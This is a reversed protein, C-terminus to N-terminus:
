ITRVTSRTGLWWAVTMFSSESLELEGVTAKNVSLGTPVRYLNLAMEEGGGADGIECQLHHWAM